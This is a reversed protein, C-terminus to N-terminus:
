HLFHQKTNVAQKRQGWTALLRNGFTKFYSFTVCVAFVTVRTVKGPFLGHSKAEKKSISWQFM